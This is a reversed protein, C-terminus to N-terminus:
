LEDNFYMEDWEAPTIGTMIFERQNATLNPFIDQVLEMGETYRLLQDDTIPLDMESRQGTLNSIKSVLM